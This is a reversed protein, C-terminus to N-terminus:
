SSRGLLPIHELKQYRWNNQEWAVHGDMEANLGDWHLREYFPIEVAVKVEQLPELDKVCCTHLIFLVIGDLSSM